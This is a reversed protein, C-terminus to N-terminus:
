KKISETYKLLRSILSQTADALDSHTQRALMLDNEKAMTELSLALSAASNTGFHSLAGKLTHAALEVLEANNETISHDIKNLLLPTEEKLAGILELLFEPDDSFSFDQLQLHPEEVLVATKSWKAIMQLLIGPHVPKSLYDDMGAECCKEQDGKLAHATIAIIPVHTGSHHEAGRIQRTTEFGGMEPMQVDMLIMDFPQTQYATLAEVGNNAVTVQHGQKELIKVAVKQNVLNDEALLIRQSATALLTSNHPVQGASEVVPNMISMIADLLDSQRVPKTLYADIGRDSYRKSDKMDVSSLMMIIAGSLEPTNRIKQVLTFGDMEPMQADVLVLPYNNGSVLSCRMEALAAFGSDLTTPNMQWSLLTRELILRNTANDDVVLVRLGILKELGVVKESEQMNEATKCHITFQFTSGKEPESECRLEGQMLQILQTSIALGLGTGGFRRTTSGDAQTFPEFIVAQKEIPIGIGTDSVSFQLEVGADSKVQNLRISVNIEGQNTFKVANGVLNMLVQRLRMADASIFRPVDPAIFCSLELGKEFARPALLCLCDFVDDHLNFNQEELELKKAEIKSFDLIDNIINLLSDASLKALDLFERQERDLHTNTTLEIMGMIGNIPTRIEHSMNALFESKAENAAEAAQKAKLLEQEARKREEVERQLISTREQVRIELTRNWEGLDVYARNLRVVMQKLSGALKALEDPSKVQINFDNDGADINQVAHVIQKLPRTVLTTIAVVAALMTIFLGVVVMATAAKSKSVLAEVEYMSWLLEVSGIQRGQFVIPSRTGLTRKENWLGERFRNTLFEANKLFYLHEKKNRDVVRIYALAGENELGELATKFFATDDFYVAAALAHSSIKAVSQAKDKLANQAQEKLRAPFYVFLFLSVVALLIATLFIIQSQLTSTGRIM